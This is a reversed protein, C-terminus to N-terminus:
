CDEYVLIQLTKSEGICGWVAFHTTLGVLDSSLMPMNNNLDQM